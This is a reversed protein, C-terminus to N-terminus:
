RQKRWAPVSLYTAARLAWEVPGYPHRRLWWGSVALQAAFTLLALGVVAAPPVKDALAFGYGTYLVMVVVSQAIYNSAAMRGAPALWAAFRATRAARAAVLVAAIYAFTMLPAVLMQLGGWWNPPDFWHMTAAFTVASIPLGLGFGAVLVRPTWRRVTQPDDFLGRKGAALGLLFMALSPVGQSLWIVLLFWPFLATQVELTAAPSGVYDAHWGPLDFFLALAEYMSGDGSGPLFMLMTWVTYLVVGTIVATRPRLKRLTILILCLLAYLTLIDGIWLLYVHVLGIAMLAACRRLLRAKESVGARQAAAIQLTFSYGFLFAFLLYFRGEFLAETVAHVFHDAPGEYQFRLHERTGNMSFLTTAVVVNTILIGFLAFGRLIDIEAIRRGSSTAPAPSEVTGSM